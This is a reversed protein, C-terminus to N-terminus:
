VHKSWEVRFSAVILAIAKQESLTRDQSKLIALRRLFEKQFPSM